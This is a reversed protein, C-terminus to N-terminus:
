SKTGASPRLSSISLIVTWPAQYSVLPVIKPHKRPVALFPAPIQRIGRLMINGEQVSFQCAWIWGTALAVGVGALGKNKISYGHAFYGNTANADGATLMGAAIVAASGLLLNRLGTFKKQKM